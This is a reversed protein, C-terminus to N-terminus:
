DSGTKALHRKKSATTKGAVIKVTATTTTQKVKSDEVSRYEVGLAVKGTFTETPTGSIVCASQRPDM